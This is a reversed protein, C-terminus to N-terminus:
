DVDLIKGPNLLNLPDMSKKLLRMLTMEEASRSYHLFPKKELGIGHEASLSGNRSKLGAYITDDFRHREQQDIEGISAIIHINGDGLHGFVAFALHPWQARLAAETELLYQNMCDIPLSIDYYITPGMVQCAEINDRIAWLADRESQSRCVVADAILDRELALTLIAELASNPEESGAMRHSQTEVLLYFPYDVSIPKKKGYPGDGTVYDFYSKWMVEFSSLTGSCSQDMFHLTEVVQEYSNVALLATEQESFLPSLKLVAKTVIGLTGESGIFLQKLDYGANNKIVKSMSSITTGDALVAELGLVLHRTTGYRLVRNGGANTAINGGITASGRAGLDIPLQLDLANAAEQAVQLIVGAQVTATRNNADIEEIQNMRELSLVVDAQDSRAGQVLGTNGGLCVVTQKHAHCYRMIASVQETSVPCVLARAQRHGGHWDASREAVGEPGFIANDGVIRKLATVLDKPEITQSESSAADYHTSGKNDSM